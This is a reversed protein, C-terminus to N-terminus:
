ESKPLNIESQDEGIIFTYEYLTETHESNHQISVTSAKPGFRKLITVVKGLQGINKGSMIIALNGEKFKLVKLIEQEPITIKLVDMRKYIDEKPNKPDKVSIFINRGDHLNLQISGGKLTTKQTIRCLKFTSEAEPIEHLILGHHSDPLIRYHKNTKVISIVDMLGVPFTRDKIVKGDVKFNGLGILKKAERYNDVIELLDRVIHLLPLCFRSPHPGPSPTIFFKGHKRKIQLFKPTNLRKLTRSGGHRTM